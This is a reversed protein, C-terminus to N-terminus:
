KRRVIATFIIILLWSLGMLLVYVLFSYGIVGLNRAAM